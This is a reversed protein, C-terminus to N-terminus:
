GGTIEFFIVIVTLWYARTRCHFRQAGDQMDVHIREVGGDLHAVVRQKGAFGHDNAARAAPSDHRRRAVRHALKPTCEAIGIRVASRRHGCAIQMRGRM